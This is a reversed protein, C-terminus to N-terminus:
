NQLAKKGRQLMIQRTYIEKLESEVKELTEKWKKSHPFDVLPSRRKSCFLANFLM